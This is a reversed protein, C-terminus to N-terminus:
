ETVSYTPKFSGDTKVTVGDMDSPLSFYLDGYDTIDDGSMRIKPFYPFYHVNDKQMWETVETEKITGSNLTAGNTRKLLMKFGVVNNRVDRINAFTLSHYKYSQYDEYDSWRGEFIVLEEYSGNVNKYRVVVEKKAAQISTSNEFTLKIYISASEYIYVGDSHVPLNSVLPKYWTPYNIPDNTGFNNLYFESTTADAQYGEIVLKRLSSRSENYGKQNIIARLGKNEGFSVVGNSLVNFPETSSYTDNPWLVNGVGANMNIKIASNEVMVRKNINGANTMKPFFVANNAKWGDPNVGVGNQYYEYFLDYTPKKDTVVFFLILNDLVQSLYLENLSFEYTKTTDDILKTNWDMGGILYRRGVRGTEKITYESESMVIMSLYCGSLGMDELTVGGDVSGITVTAKVGMGKSTDDNWNINFLPEARHVYGNFDSKRCRYDNVTGYITKGWIEGLIKSEDKQPKSYEWVSAKNMVSPDTQDGSVDITAQYSGISIVPMLLGFPKSVGNEKYTKFESQPIENPTTSGIPKYRSWKNIKESTCLQGLEGSAVGITRAIDGITVPATIKGNSTSM